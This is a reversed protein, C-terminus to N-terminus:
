RSEGKLAVSTDTASRYQQVLAIAEQRAAEYLDASNRKLNNVVAHHEDNNITFEVAGFRRAIEELPAKGWSDEALGDPHLVVSHFYGSSSRHTGEFQPAFRVALLATPVLGTVEQMAEAFAACRGYTFKAAQYAPIFPPLRSPIAAFFYANGKIAETAHAIKAEDPPSRLPLMSLRAEDYFRTRVGGSGLKRALPGITGQNFNTITKVGLADFVCDHNDAVYVRLPKFEEIPIETRYDTSPVWWDVHLLWGTLRALAVAFNVCDDAQWADILEPRFAARLKIKAQGM